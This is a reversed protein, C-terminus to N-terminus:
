YGFDIVSQGMLENFLVLNEENFAEKWAGIQGKRFTWTGGYLQEAVAVVDAESRNAELFVNLKRLVDLQKERSGGGEEGVLDEFKCVLVSPDQMWLAAYPFTTAPNRYEYPFLLTARLMADPPLAAFTQYDFKPSSSWTLNALLHHMFSVMVDRPDRILLIKKYHESFRTRVVDLEPFLHGGVIREREHLFTVPDFYKVDSLGIWRTQERTLLEIAKRLLHTGAKPVSLYIVKQEAFLAHVCLVFFLIYKKL